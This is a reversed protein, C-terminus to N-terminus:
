EAEEDTDMDARGAKALNEVKHKDGTEGSQDGTTTGTPNQKKIDDAPSAGENSNPESDSM